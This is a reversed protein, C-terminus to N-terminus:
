RYTSQLYARAKDLGGGLLRVMAAAASAGRPSAGILNDSVLGFDQRSLADLAKGYAADSKAFRRLATLAFRTSEPLKTWDGQGLGTSDRMAKQYAATKPDLGKMDPRASVKRTAYHNRAAAEAREWELDHLRQAQEESLKFKGTKIAAIMAAAKAAHGGPGWSGTDRVIVRARTLDKELEAPDRDLSYGYGIFTGAKNTYRVPAYGLVAGSVGAALQQPTGRSLAGVRRLTSATDPGNDGPAKIHELEPVELPARLGRFEPENTLSEKAAQEQEKLAKERRLVRTEIQKEIQSYTTGTILGAEHLLKAHRADAAEKEPTYGLGSNDGKMFDDVWTRHTELLKGFFAPDASLKGTKANYQRMLSGLEVRVGTPLGNVMVEYRVDPSTQVPMTSLSVPIDKWEGEAVGPALSSGQPGLLIVPKYAELAQELVMARDRDIKTPLSAQNIWQGHVLAHSAAFSASLRAIAADEPLNPDLKPIENAVWANFYRDADVGPKGKRGILPWSDWWSRNDQLKKYTKEAINDYVKKPVGGGGPGQAGLGPTPKARLERLTNLYAQEPNRAPDNGLHEFYRLYFHAAEKGTDDQFANLFEASNAMGKYYGYAVEAAAAWTPPMKEKGDAVQPSALYAGTLMARHDPYIMRNKAAVGQQYKLIAAAKQEDTLSPDQMYGMSVAKTAARLAADKKDSSLHDQAKLTGAVVYPISSTIAGAKRNIEVAKLYTSVFKDAKYYGSQLGTDLRQVLAQMAPEDLAEGADEYRVLDAEIGAIYHAAAVEDRQGKGEALAKQAARLAGYYADPKREAFSAGGGNPKVAFEFLVSPDANVVALNSAVDFAADDVENRTMGLGVYQDKFSALWGEPNARNVIRSAVESRLNDETTARLKARAAETIGSYLRLNTQAAHDVFGDIFDTDTIGKTYEQFFKQIVAQAKVPNPDERLQLGELHTVVDQEYKLALARGQAFMYQQQFAPDADSSAAALAEAQTQPGNRAALMDAEQTKARTQEARKRDALSKLPKYFSELAGALLMATNPAPAELTNTPTAVVASQPAQFGRGTELSPAPRDLQSPRAM